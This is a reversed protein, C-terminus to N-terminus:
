KLKKVETLLLFLTEFDDNYCSALFLECVQALSTGNKAFLM